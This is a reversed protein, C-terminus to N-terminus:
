SETEQSGLFRFGVGRVTEIHRPKSQEDGLKRRLTAIHVDLTKTSGFWNQDWVEAILTERSLVRGPERTLRELLDFEKRTLRLEVDAQWARRAGPDVRLDGSSRVGDVQPVVGRVRRLVARIRSVVEDVSFPKVVYDDAGLELGVIADTVSGRATVMIIPVDSTRRLERCVDRGDGDPLMLDLLVVDAPPPRRALRLAEDATQAVVIEFGHRALASAFPDAISSEDEVLLVRGAASTSASMASVVIPACGPLVSLIQRASPYGEGGHGLCCRMMVIVAMTVVMLMVVPVIVVM